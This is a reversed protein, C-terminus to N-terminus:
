KSRQRWLFPATDCILNPDISLHSITFTGKVVLPTFSGWHEVSPRMKCSRCTQSRRSAKKPPTKKTWFDESSRTTRCVESVSTASRAGRQRTFAEDKTKSVLLPFIKLFHNTTMVFLFNSHSMDTKLHSLFTNYETKYSVNNPHKVNDPQETILRGFM